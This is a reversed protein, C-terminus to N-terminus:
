IGGGFVYEVSARDSSIACVFDLSPSVVVSSLSPSKIDPVNVSFARLLGTWGDGSVSLLDLLAASASNPVDLASSEVFWLILSSIGTLPKSFGLSALRPLFFSSIRVNLPLERLLSSM